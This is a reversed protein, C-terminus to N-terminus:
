IEPYSSLNKLVQQYVSELDHFYSHEDGEIGVFFLHLCPLSCDESDIRDEHVCLRVCGTSIQANTEETIKLLLNKISDYEKENRPIIGVYRQRMVADPTSFHGQCTSYTICKFKLIFVTALERIGSELSRKFKRHYRTFIPSNFCATTGDTNIHGEKSERIIEGQKEEVFPDDWSAIFQKLGSLYTPM